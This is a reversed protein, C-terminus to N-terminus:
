EIWVIGDTLELLAKGGVLAVTPCMSLNDIEPALCKGEKKTGVGPSNEGSLFISIGGLNAGPLPIPVAPILQRM